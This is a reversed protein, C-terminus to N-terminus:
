RSVLFALKIRRLSPSSWNPVSATAIGCVCFITPGGSDEMRSPSRFTMVARRNASRRAWFIFLIPKADIKMLDIFSLSAPGM